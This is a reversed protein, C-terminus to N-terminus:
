RQHKKEVHQRGAGVRRSRGLLVDHELLERRGKAVTQPHFGLLEAIQGIGGHGRKLAELGAFIRRQQEDLMSVFIVIAAKVEDSYDERTEAQVRRSLLQKKSVPSVPSCYLYVGSKKERKIKGKKVLRLLSEKVGVHLLDELEQAFYGSESKTVFFELTSLLNGHRSFYVSRHCWLGNKDFQAISDLTYFRGKHSYSSRYSLTKLIRFATMNVNTGIANMVDELTSIKCFILFEELDEKNYKPRNM